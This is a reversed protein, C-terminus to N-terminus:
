SRALPRVTLRGGAYGIELREGALGALAGYVAGVDADLERAAEETDWAEGRAAKRAALEVVRARLKEEDLTGEPRAVGARAAGPAPTADPAPVVADKKVFLFYFPLGALVIGVGTLSELPREVLTNVSFVATAAVFLGPVVLPVKFPRPADPHRRRFVFVTAAALGYWIWSVFIIATLLQEFTGALALACSWAAQLWISAAPTGFRPHVEQVKRWFLGDRAMAYTVRPGSLIVANATGAVSVLVAVVLLTRATDGGFSSAADAAAFTSTAVGGVGLHLLYVFVVGLYVAIVTVIGLVLSRPLNRTPDKVEDGVQTSNIWGDYAFMAFVMAVGFAKALGLGSPADTAAVVPSANGVFVLGLVVLVVLAAVKAVTSVTAIRGGHRVGLVNVVSLALILAIAVAKQFVLPGLGEGAFADFPALATLYTAFAVGLAALSASKAVTLASWGQMYGVVPGYAKRMWTYTGGSAPFMSSLEGYALAGLLVLLGSVLFVALMVWPDRVLAAMGSVGLFIGSGIMSGVVVATAEKLGLDRRLTAALPPRGDGWTFPTATM